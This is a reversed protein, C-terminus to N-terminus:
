TISRLLRAWNEMMYATAKYNNERATKAAEEMDEIVKSIIVYAGEKGKEKLQSM